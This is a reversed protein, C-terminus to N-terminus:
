SFYLIIDAFCFYIASVVSVQVFISDFATPVFARGAAFVPLTHHTDKSGWFNLARSGRSQLPEPDYDEDGGKLLLPMMGSVRRNTKKNRDGALIGERIGNNQYRTATLPAIRDPRYNIAKISSFGDNEVCDDGEDDSITMLANAHVYFSARDNGAIKMSAGKMSNMKRSMGTNKMGSAGSAVKNHNVASNIVGVSSPRYVEVTINVHPPIKREIALYKFLVQSDINTAEDLSERHRSGLVIVSLASRLNMYLFDQDTTSPRRLFFIDKYNQKIYDWDEPEDDSVLLVSHYNEHTGLNSKRLAKVFKVIHTLCGLVIVHDHLEKANRIEISPIKEDGAMRVGTEADHKAEAIAESSVKVDEFSDARLLQAAHKPTDAIPKSKSKSLTRKVSPSLVGMVEGVDIEVVDSDYGTGSSAASLARQIKHLKRAIDKSDSDSSRVVKDGIM